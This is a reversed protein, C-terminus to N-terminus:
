DTTLFLHPLKHSSYTDTVGCINMEEKGESVM